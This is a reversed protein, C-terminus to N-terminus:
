TAVLPARAMHGPDANLMSHGDHASRSQLAPALKSGRAVCGPMSCFAELVGNAGQGIFLPITPTGSTGMILKNVMTVYLPIDEPTPYAPSALDKWTLGPYQGLVNIISANEMDKFIKKGNDSLYQTFNIHFARAIGAIAMPMVGAWTVSGGVYHLNHAPHVLVGGITAGIM